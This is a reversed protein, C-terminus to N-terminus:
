NTERAKKEGARFRPIILASVIYFAFAFARQMELIETKLSSILNGFSNKWNYNLKGSM